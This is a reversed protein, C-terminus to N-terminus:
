KVKIQVKVPRLLEGYLFYCVESTVLAIAFDDRGESNYWGVRMYVKRRYMFKEGDKFERFPKSKHKM